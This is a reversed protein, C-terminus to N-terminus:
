FIYFIHYNNMFGRLAHLLEIIFILVYFILNSFKQFSGVKKKKSLISAHMQDFPSSVFFNGGPKYM